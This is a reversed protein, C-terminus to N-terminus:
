VINFIIRVVIILMGSIISVVLGWDVYKQPDFYVIGKQQGTKSIPFSMLGNKTKQAHVRLSGDRYIWGPHYNQSFFLTSPTAATFSVKYGNVPQREYSVRQGGSLAFLDRHSSTTYITIAGSQVKTLWTQSDLVSEYSARLSPAYRRDKLFIEGMSDLPIVIYGIGADELLTRTETRMLAEKLTAPSTAEFLAESEVPMHDFAAYSFRQQRPVWLTRSFQKDATLMEQLRNYEGPVTHNAFTGGLQGIVAPRIMCLWLIVYVGIVIKTQAQLKTLVYPILISYSVATLLYFKTPDRFMVFGAVHEFLWVYIFGFPENAGKALFVGILALVAFYRSLKQTFFLSCFAVIPILLFIPEMFYTKGFINEPWNPHLLSLAHSFDAFSFFKVAARTIFNTGLSELPNSHLFLLPVLWFANLLVTILGVITGSVFLTKIGDQVHRREHLSITYAAYLGIMLCLLYAVRPDLALVVALVCGTKISSHIRKSRGETRLLEIWLHLVLPAIAYALGIGMQGGSTLMLIYTNTTYILAGIAIYATSVNPLVSRLLTRISVVCMVLFLGFWGVKYVIVWPIHLWVSFPVVLLSFFTGLGLLPNVAGMGNGLWSSWLVPYLSLDRLFNNYYYPWDGGIINPFIFWGRYIFAILGVILVWFFKRM